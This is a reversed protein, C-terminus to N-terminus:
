LDSSSAMLLGLLGLFTQSSRLSAKCPDAIGKERSVTPQQVCKLNRKGEREWGGCLRDKGEMEWKRGGSGVCGTRGM